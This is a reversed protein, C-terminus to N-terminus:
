CTIANKSCENIVVRHKGMKTLPISDLEMWSISVQYGVHEHIKSLIENKLNSSMRDALIVKLEVHDERKQVVQFRRIVVYDKLLHPFFEGPLTKGNPFQLVDLQRGKVERLLPLGRGCSCQEFGAVAQDGTVYRIFPMGYNFLDTIVVNGIKGNQTTTGDENLVEVILHELSIHLGKHESCESGILMFERSGYTEYVQAGFVSEIKDRQFEHLKEAGVIISSPSVPRLGAEELDKAFHFLANTYGVIVTPRARNYTHLNKELLEQSLTFSNLFQRRHISHYIRDKLTSLFGHKELPVGWIYFQKTGLDAGAWSYGRLAAANRREYSNHDISFHLPVGTSGGTSKFILDKEYSTSRLSFSESNITKKVLLPMRYFNQVLANSSTWGLSQWQKRYYPTTQYAHWLLHTLASQQLDVLDELKMWQSRELEKLYRLTRRRKYITEFAPILLHKFLAQM